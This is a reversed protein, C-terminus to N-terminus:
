PLHKAALGQLLQDIFDIPHPVRFAIDVGPRLQPLQEAPELMKLEKGSEQPAPHHEWATPAEEGIPQQLRELRAPAPEEVGLAVLWDHCRLRTFIRETTPARGCNM